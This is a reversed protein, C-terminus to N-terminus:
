KLWQERHDQVYDVLRRPSHGLLHSLTPDVAEAQGWRLGVHLITQIAVQQLPLGRHLLHLLYGPISAAQYTVQRGLCRTLIDAVEAFTLAESGTLTYAKGQHSVPQILANVAVEAIDRVDIFAVKANGAPLFIRDCRVIDERYADGLNQAFFGPRLITWDKPGQMLHNEVEHHPIWPNDAAGAVSVFEIHDVGEERAVDIFPILTQKVNSIAPPRLLFVCSCGKVAPRFTAADFFDFLVVEAGSQASGAAPHRSGIRFRAQRSRLWSIVASGVNGTAGTVFIM